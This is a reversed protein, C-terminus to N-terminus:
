AFECLIALRECLKKNLAYQYSCFKEGRRTRQLVAHHKMM